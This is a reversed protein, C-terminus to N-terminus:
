GVDLGQQVCIEKAEAAPNEPMRSQMARWCLVIGFFLLAGAIVILGAAIALGFVPNPQM